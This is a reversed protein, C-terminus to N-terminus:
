SPVVAAPAGATQMDLAIREALALARLGDAGTVRPKARNRVAEVFDALERRLPEDRVVELRGGTISPVKGAAREVRWSEVEQAACDISVYSNPQFFRLKRVRDRSIRSATLNAICGSEFRLRVSAIDIRDTLVPVGFAEVSVVESGVLARLVDLDHIMLDFIVDIDLSREPFAALRHVEVFRPGSILPEAATVAPNFREVHGVALTTGARDAAAIIAEADPVSSALPKEILVAIGREILPLAVEAHARTPVAIIAADALGAVEDLSQAAPVGHLGSVEAARSEDIDRIAVLEVDDLSSVLRAHHRGVHGVGVVAVRLRRASM